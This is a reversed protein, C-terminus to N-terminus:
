NITTGWVLIISSAEIVGPEFVRSCSKTEGSGRPVIIPLEVLPLTATGLSHKRKLRAWSVRIRLRASLLPWMSQFRPLTADLM